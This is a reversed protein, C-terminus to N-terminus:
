PEPDRAWSCNLPMQTYPAGHVRVRKWKDNTAYIHLHGKEPINITVDVLVPKPHKLEWCHPSPDGAECSEWVIYEAGFDQHHQVSRGKLVAHRHHHSHSGDILQHHDHWVTLPMLIISGIRAVVITTAVVFMVKVGIHAPYILGEIAEILLDKTIIYMILMSALAALVLPAFSLLSFDACSHVETEQSDMKETGGVSPHTSMVNTSNM